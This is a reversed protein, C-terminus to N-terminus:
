NVTQVSEKLKCTKCQTKLKKCEKTEYQVAEEQPAKYREAACKDVMQIKNTM